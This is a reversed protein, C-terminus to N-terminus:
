RSAARPLAPMAEGRSLLDNAQRATMPKGYYWGQGVACGFGLVATHTAEDEIGEVTVPVDIANALSAVARVIAANQEDHHITSVFSRDIKIVDFPLSRLLSLSSFGTGFDDLALRIGQNQLSLAISRALEIDAFLSSETVEVVLRNGPFGTETLARVIKQALWPDALQTPSINVSIKISQDWNVAEALATRMVQESLQGILGMDEAIPIFTNPGILGKDPHIWRALVEFGIVQGTELSVQPEFFPVFQGNELGARIGQELDGQAVLAREMGADFWVPRVARGSGARDMAIDARRLLDSMAIDVAPASAIGLFAGVQIMKNAVAFPRTVADVLSEALQEAIATDAEPVALAIAFEDGNLRAAVSKGDIEGTIAAAIARLMDDGVEYGHRDNVSRLRHMRMSIVALWEGCREAELRLQEGSEAFGKRNAFGTVADTAAMRAARAEGELRRESEHLLDAYRRWGFLLLAVNLTLAVGLMKLEPGYRSGAEKLIAQFLNNGNFILLAVAAILISLVLIDRRVREVAFVKPENRAPKGPVKKRM